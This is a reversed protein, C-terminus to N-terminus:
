SYCNMKFDSDMGSWTAIFGDDEKYLGGCLIGYLKDKPGEVSDLWKVVLM